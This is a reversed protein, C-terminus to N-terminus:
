DWGDFEPLAEREEKTMEVMEFTWQEGIPMERCAEFMHDLVGAFEGICSNFGNSIKLYREKDSMM